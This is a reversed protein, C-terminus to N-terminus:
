VNSKSIDPSSTTEVNIGAPMENKRQKERAWGGAWHWCVAYWAKKGEGYQVWKDEVIRFLHFRKESRRVIKFGAPVFGVLPLLVPGIVELPIQQMLAHYQGVQAFPLQPMGPPHSNNMKRYCMNSQISM